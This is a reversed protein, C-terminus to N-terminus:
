MAAEFPPVGSLDVWAVTNVPYLRINGGSEVVLKGFQPTSSGGGAVMCAQDEAPRHSAPLTAIWWGDSSAATFDGSARRIRGKLSVRGGSMGMEPLAGHGAYVRGESLPLSRWGPRSVPRWETPGGATSTASTAMFWERTSHVFGLTGWLRFRPDGLEARNAVVVTPAVRPTFREVVADTLLQNASRRVTHLVVHTRDFTSPPAGAYVQVSVPGHAASEDRPDHTLCVYYTTTGSSPMPFTLPMPASLQHFFGALVANATGTRTSVGLTATNSANDFSSLGYPGGGADIIGDGQGRTIWQWMSSSVAQDVVPYSFEPGSPPEAASSVLDQLQQILAYNSEPTVTM